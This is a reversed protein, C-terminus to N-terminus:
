GLVYRPSFTKQRTKLMYIKGKGVFPLMLNPVVRPIPVCSTFHIGDAKVFLHMISHPSFM